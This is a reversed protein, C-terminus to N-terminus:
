LMSLIDGGAPAPKSEDQKTTKKNKYKEPNMNELIWRAGAAGGEASLRQLAILEAQAKSTRISIYLESYIDDVNNLHSEKAKEEWELANRESIGCAATSLIFNAGVRMYGSIQNVMDKTLEKSEM